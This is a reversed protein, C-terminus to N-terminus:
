GVINQPKQITEGFTVLWVSFADAIGVNTGKEIEDAVIQIVAKMMGAIRRHDPFLVTLPHDRFPFDKFFLCHVLDNEPGCLGPIPQHQFLHCPTTHPDTLHQFESQLVELIAFQYQLIRFATPFMFLHENRLFHGVPQMRSDPM